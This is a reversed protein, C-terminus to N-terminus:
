GSTGRGEAFYREYIGAIVARQKQSYSGAAATDEIRKIWTADQPRLRDQIERLVAIMADPTSARGARADALWSELTPKAADRKRTAIHQNVKALDAPSLVRKFRMFESRPLDALYDLREEAPISQLIALPDRSM